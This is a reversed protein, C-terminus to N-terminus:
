SGLCGAEAQLFRRNLVVWRLACRAAIIPRPGIRSDTSWAHFFWSAECSNFSWTIALPRLRIAVRSGGGPLTPTNRLSSVSLTKITFLVNKLLILGANKAEPSTWSPSKGSPPRSMHVDKGSNKLPNNMPNVPKWNCQYVVSFNLLYFREGM